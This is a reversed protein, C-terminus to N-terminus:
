LNSTSPNDQKIFQHLVCNERKISQHCAGGDHESINEAVSSPLIKIHPHHM